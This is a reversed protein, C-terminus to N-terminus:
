RHLRVSRSISSRHIILYFRESGIDRLAAHWTDGSPDTHWPRCSMLSVASRQSGRAGLTTWLARIDAAHQRSTRLCFATPTLTRNRPLFRSAKSCGARFFEPALIPGALSSSPQTMRSFLSTRLGRAMKYKWFDKPLWAASSCSGYQRQGARCGSQLVGRILSGCNQTHSCSKSGNAEISNM